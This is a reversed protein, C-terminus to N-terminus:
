KNILLSHMRLISNCNAVVSCSSLLSKPPSLFAALHESPITFIEAEQRKWMTYEALTTHTKSPM